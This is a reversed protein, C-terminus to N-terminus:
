HSNNIITMVAVTVILMVPWYTSHKHVVHATLGATNYFSISASQKQINHM